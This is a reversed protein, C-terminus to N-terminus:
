AVVAGAIIAGWSLASTASEPNALEGRANLIADSRANLPANSM